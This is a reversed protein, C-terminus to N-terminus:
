LALSADLLAVFTSPTFQQAAGLVDAVADSEALQAHTAQPVLEPEIAAVPQARVGTVDGDFEVVPAARLRGSEPPPTHLPPRPEDDSFALNALREEPPELALPRRSSAPPDEFQDAMPLEDLTSPPQGIDAPEEVQLELLSEALVPEAAVLRERSESSEAAAVEETMMDVVVETSADHVDIDVGLDLEQMLAPPPRTPLSDDDDVFPAPAAPTAQLVASSQGNSAGAGVASRSRVRELLAELRAIVLAKSM